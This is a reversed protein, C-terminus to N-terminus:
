DYGPHRIREGVGEVGARYLEAAREAPGKKGWLAKARHLYFNGDVLVATLM